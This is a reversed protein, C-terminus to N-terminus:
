RTIFIRHQNFSELLEMGNCIFNQRNEANIEGAIEALWRKAMFGPNQQIEQLLRFSLPQLEFFRVSESADRMVLLCTPTDGPSEPQFGPGIQHVPYRYALPQALPSLSIPVEGPDGPVPEDPPEEDLTYLALEIWEYHALEVIFDPLNSALQSGSLYEVFEGSIQMFYPTQSQHCIFFDRVMSNWAEVVLISKIVPFFDSLLASVNNFILESYIGMRREDLGAPPPVHAPDRLHGTFAKQLALLEGM